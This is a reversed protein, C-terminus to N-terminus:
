RSAPQVEHEGTVTAIASIVEDALKAGDAAREPTAQIRVVVNDGDIEELIVRPERRTPTKINEDLIAQITTASIGSHLRVRVDVPDPERVPVVVSSLVVNNPILVVDQGRALQTYLLGLSSVVGDIPGGLQGAQLRVRMGVRFPRASLLVMGAFLNGLTQQAALGLVIATISGGFALTALPVNLIALAGLVTIAVTALRLIFGVTGATSPDMRRFFTPAAARGVDRAFAWGLFAIAFAALIHVWTRSHTTGHGNPHGFVHSTYTGFIANLALVGGLLLLLFVAQRRARSIAQDNLHRQPLGAAEWEHSHTDFM